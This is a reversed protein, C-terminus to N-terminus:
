RRDICIIIGKIGPWGVFNNAATGNWAVHATTSIPCISAGQYEKSYISYEIHKSGLLKFDAGLGYIMGNGLSAAYLLLGYALIPWGIRSVGFLLVISVVFPAIITSYLESSHILIMPACSGAVVLLPFIIKPRRLSMYVVLALFILVSGLAVVVWVPQLQDFAIFSTPLPTVPFALTTIFNEAWSIPNLKLAYRGEANSYRSLPFHLKIVIWGIAAIIPLVLSCLYARSLRRAKFRILATALPILVAAAVALEKTFFLAASLFNVSAALRDGRWGALPPDPLRHLESIFALIAGGFLINCLGQSITCPTTVLYFLLPNALGLIWWGPKPIQREFLVECGLASLITAGITCLLSAGFWLPLYIKNAALLVVYELPRFFATVRFDAMIDHVAASYLVLGDDRHYYTGYLFILSDLFLIGVGGLLACGLIESRWTRITTYDNKKVLLQNARLHDAMAAIYREFIASTTTDRCINPSM